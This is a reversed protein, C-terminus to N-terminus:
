RNRVRTEAVLQAGLLKCYAKTDNLAVVKLYDRLGDVGEQDSDFIRWIANKYERTKVNPTGRKRGGVKKHGKKFAGPRRSAHQERGIASGRKLPNSM